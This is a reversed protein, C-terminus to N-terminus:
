DHVHDSVQRKVKINVIEMFVSKDVTTLYNPQPWPNPQIMSGPAPGQPEPEKLEVQWADMTGNEEM